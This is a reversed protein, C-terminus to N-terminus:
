FLDRCALRCRPQHKKIGFHVSSYQLIPNRLEESKVYRERQLSFVGIFGLQTRSGPVHMFYPNFTAPRQSGQRCGRSCLPSSRGARVGRVMKRNGDGHLNGVGEEKFPRLSCLAWQVSLENAARVHAEKGLARTLHPTSLGPM